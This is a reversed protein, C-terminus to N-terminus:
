PCGAAFRQLFCTFDAVNLVPAVTSGDCNAYSDGGAFRQLFCTFDAVNLIPAATSGDCNAYCGAGCGLQSVYASVRGGDRVFTGGIILDGDPLSSLGMTGIFYPLLPPGSVVPSWAIGDWRAIRDVPGGAESFDGVAYLYNGVMHLGHVTPFQGGGLGSGMPSWNNGDWRAVHSGPSTFEGGAVVDGSPLTLLSYVTSNVGPGTSQWSGGDFRAIFSPSQGTGNGFDGGAIIEGNPRVALAWVQDDLGPGQFPGLDQGMSHWAAGDWRAIHEAEIGGATSFDGGVVLDGNSLVVMAQVRTGVFGTGIGSGLPQWSSGDWRAINKAAAGGAATFDGGAVIDGNPMRVMTRVTGNVGLGMESWGGGAHHLAVRQAQVTGASTFDGGAIYDGNPLGLLALVTGNMGTGLASWEFGSWVAAFNAPVFGARTFQGGAFLQGEPLVALADVSGNTGAGVPTWGSGNWSIINNAPTSGLVSFGSGFGGGVVLEGTPMVRLSSVWGNLGLEVPQWPGSGNWQAIYNVIEEGAMEFGGGAVVAGSPMVALARVSNDFNANTGSWAIGNWRAVYPAPVGGALGFDGGAYLDGNPAVALASVGGNVGSGLGSWSSGNWQAINSLATGGSASFYGAAVLNGSPLVTLASVSAFGSPVTLGSGLPSWTTGNWRAINAAPAGGATDFTGGAVLEGGPLVALSRVHHLGIGAGLPEWSDGNWMAINSALVDGAFPFNGAVVLRAPLPGGADPDWSVAAWVLGNVGPIGDGPRFEPTCHQGSAGSSVLGTLCAIAGTRFM